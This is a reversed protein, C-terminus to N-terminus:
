IRSEIEDWVKRGLADIYSLQPASDASHMSRIVVEVKQGVAATMQGDPGTFEEVPVLGESKYGFDVLIGRDSIGVVTGDVLEGPHFVTQEQEFQELIAGFDIETSATSDDAPEPVPQAQAAPARVSHASPATAPQAAPAPAAQVPAPTPAPVDVPSEPSEATEVAAAQSVPTTTVAKEDVAAPAAEGPPDLQEGAHIDDPTEITSAAETQPAVAEATAAATESQESATKEITASEEADQTVENTM